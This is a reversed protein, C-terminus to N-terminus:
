YDTPDQYTATPLRIVHASILSTAVNTYNTINKIEGFLECFFWQKRVLLTRNYVKFKDRTM